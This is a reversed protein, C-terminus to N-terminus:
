SLYYSLYFCCYATKHPHKQAGISYWASVEQAFKIAVFACIFSLSGPALKWM